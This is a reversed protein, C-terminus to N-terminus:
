EVKECAALAHERSAGPPVTVAVLRACAERVAKVFATPSGAAAQECIAAFQSKFRAPLAPQAQIAQKCSAVV